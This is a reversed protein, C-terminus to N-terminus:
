AWKWDGIHLDREYTEPRNVWKYINAYKNLVAKRSSGSCHGTFTISKVEWPDADPHEWGEVSRLTFKTIDSVEPARSGFAKKLDIMRRENAGGSPAETLSTTSKGVDIVINDYTGSGAINSGLELRVELSKFRTCAWPEGPPQVALTKTKSDETEWQWDHPAISKKLKTPTKGGTAQMDRDLWEYLSSWKDIVAVRGSGSCIGKFSVGGLEWYDPNSGAHSRSYLTFHKVDSVRVNRVGFAKKINVSKVNEFGRDPSTALLLTQKGIDMVIEDDSGGSIGNGIHLHISLKRFYRCDEIGALMPPRPTRMAIERARDCDRGKFAQRSGRLSNVLSRKEHKHHAVLTALVAACSAVGFQGSGWLDLNEEDVEMPEADLGQHLPGPSEIIQQGDESEPHARQEEVEMREIAPRQATVLDGHSADLDVAFYGFIQVHDMTHTIDLGNPDAQYDIYRRYPTGPNRCIVVHGPVRRTDPRTGTGRPWYAVGVIRPMGPPFALYEPRGQHTLQNRDPGPRRGSTEDGRVRWLRWAIGNRALVEFIHGSGGQGPAPIEVGSRRSVEEPTTGLLHSVTVFICDARVPTSTLLNTLAEMKDLVLKISKPQDQRRLVRGERVAPANIDITAEQEHRLPHGVGNAMADVVNNCRVILGSTTTPDAPVGAANTVGQQLCMLASLLAPFSKGVM